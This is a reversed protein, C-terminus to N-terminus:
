CANTFFVACAETPTVPCKGDDGFTTVREWVLRAIPAPNNEPEESKWKDGRKLLQLPLTWGFAFTFDLIAM